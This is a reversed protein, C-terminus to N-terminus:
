KQAVVDILQMSSSYSTKLSEKLRELDQEMFYKWDERTYEDEFFKLSENLRRIREGLDELDSSFKSYGDFEVPYSTGGFISDINRLSLEFENSLKAFKECSKPDNNKIKEMGRVMKDLAQSESNVRKSVDNKDLSECSILLAFLTERVRSADIATLVEWDRKLDDQSEGLFRMSENLRKLAADLNEYKQAVTHYAATKADERSIHLINKVSAMANASLNVLADDKVADLRTRIKRIDEFDSKQAM